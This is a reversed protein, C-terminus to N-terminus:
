SFRSGGKLTIGGHREKRLFERGRVVHHSVVNGPQLVIHADANQVVSDSNRNRFFLFYSNKINAQTSLVSEDDM